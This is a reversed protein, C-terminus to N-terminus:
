KLKLSGNPNRGPHQEFKSFDPCHELPEKYIHLGFRHVGNTLDPHECTLNLDSPEMGSYRCAFCTKKPQEEAQDM